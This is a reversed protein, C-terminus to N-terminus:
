AEPTDAAEAPLPEVEPSPEGALKARLISVYETRMPDVENLLALYYSVFYGLYCGHLIREIPTAGKIGVDIMSFGTLLEKVGDMLAAIEGKDAPDRLLVIAFEESLRGGREWATVGNFAVDPFAGALVPTKSNATLLRRWMDVIRDGYGAHGYIVPVKGYLTQAVQKALNRAEPYDFRFLERVNKMHKVAFSLKETIGPAIGLKELYVVLPAILYGIATREPQGPPVKITQVGDRVAAEMLKGGATLCIVRAGCQRADRYANLMVDTTGGYDVVFVVSREGVFGSMRPGAGVLLPAQTEGSFATAVISAASAGYGTGAFFVVNPMEELPEVSHNQAIGMGTEFQEPIDNIVRLMNRRDVAQMRAVDDLLPMQETAM